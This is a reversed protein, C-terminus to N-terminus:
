NKFYVNFLFSVDTTNNFASSLSVFCKEWYIVQGQMEFMQRVFPQNTQSSGSNQARHLLTFPVSQIWEGVSNLKTVDDLYLTLYSTQMQAITIPTRNTPTASMDTSTLIEIATIQKGRLYPQDLFQYKTAPNGTSAIGTSVLEILQSKFVKPM